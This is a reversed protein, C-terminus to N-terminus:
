DLESEAMRYDIHDFQKNPMSTMCSYKKLGVSVNIHVCETTGMQLVYYTRSDIGWISCPCQCALRVPWQEAVLVVM